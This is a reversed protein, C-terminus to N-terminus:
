KMKGINTSHYTGTRTEWTLTAFTNPTTIWCPKDFITRYLRFVGPLKRQTKPKFMVIRILTEGNSFRLRQEPLPEWCSPGQGNIAVM